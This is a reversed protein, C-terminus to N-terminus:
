EFHVEWNTVAVAVTVGDHITKKVLLKEAGAMAARECVNDVGTVAQVRPSATFTGPVARLQEAAYFVAPLERERCFALLGEENSKLDISAVQGIAKPHINHEQLVLDVAERFKEVPTGRRCGLGLHLVPPM